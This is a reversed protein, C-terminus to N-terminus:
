NAGATNPHHLAQIKTIDPVFVHLAGTPTMRMEGAALQQRYHALDFEFWDGPSSDLLTLDASQMTLKGFHITGGTLRIYNRWRTRDWDSLAPKENPKRGYDEELKDDATCHVSTVMGTNRPAPLLEDTSLYLSDGHAEIGKQAPTHLLSAPKLHMFGLMGKFPIKFVKLRDIHLSVRGDQTASIDGTLQVPLPVVEHLNGNIQIQNPGLAKLRIGSLRSDKLVTNRLLTALDDLSIETKGQEIEVKFTTPDDLSPVVDKRTPYLRGQLWEARLHIGSSEHFIVHRAEVITYPKQEDREVRAEPAPTSAPAAQM